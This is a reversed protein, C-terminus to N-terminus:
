CDWVKGSVMETPVGTGPGAWLWWAEWVLSQQLTHALTLM